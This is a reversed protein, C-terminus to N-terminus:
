QPQLSKENTINQNLVEKSLQRDLAIREHHITVQLLFVLDLIGDYLIGTTHYM